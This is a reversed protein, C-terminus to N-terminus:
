LLNATAAAKRASYGSHPVGPSPNQELLQRIGFTPPIPNNNSRRLVLVDRYAMEICMM